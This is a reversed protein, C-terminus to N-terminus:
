APLSPSNNQNFLTLWFDFTADTASSIDSLLSYRDKLTEIDLNFQKFLFIADQRDKDKDRHLKSLILDYPDLAYLRLNKFRNPFMERLRNEYGIPVNFCASDIHVHHKRGLESRKGGLSEWGGYSRPTSQYFDLDKTPRSTSGYYEIVFGGSCIFKVECPLVSDFETLFGRWSQSFDEFSKM